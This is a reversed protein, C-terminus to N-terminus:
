PMSGSVAATTESRLAPPTPPIAREIKSAHRLAICAGLGSFRRAVVSNALKASTARSEVAKRPLMGGPHLSISRPALLACQDRQSGSARAAAARGPRQREGQGSGSARAAAAVPRLVVVPRLEHGESAIEGTIRPRRVV